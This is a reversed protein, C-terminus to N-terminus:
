HCECFQLVPQLLTFNNGLWTLWSSSVTHGRFTHSDKLEATSTHLHSPHFGVNRMCSIFTVRESTLGDRIKIWLCSNKLLDAYWGWRCFVNKNQQLRGQGAKRYLVLQDLNRLMRVGELWRPSPIWLVSVLSKTKISAVQPALKRFVQPRTFSNVVWKSIKARQQQQRNFAIKVNGYHM